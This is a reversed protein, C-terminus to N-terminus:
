SYVLHEQESLEHLARAFTQQMRAIESTHQENLAKIEAKHKAVLTVLTSNIKIQEALSYKLQEYDGQHDGQSSRTKQRKNSRTNANYSVSNVNTSGRKLSRLSTLTALSSLSLTSSINSSSSSSSSDFLSHNISRDVKHAGSHGPPKGSGSVCKSCEYQTCSCVRKGCRCMRRSSSSSSSSSSNSSNNNRNNNRSSRSSSSSSNNNFTTSQHNPSSNIDDENLYREVERYSRFHKNDPQPSTFTRYINGNDTRTHEQVTWGTPLGTAANVAIRQNSLQSANSSSSSSSFTSSKKKAIQKKTVSKPPVYRRGHRDLNKTVKIKNLCVNKKLHKVLGGPRAFVHSCHACTTQEATFIKEKSSSSSTSSFSVDRESTSPLTSVSDNLHSDDQPTTMEEPMECKQYMSGINHACTWLEPLSSADVGLSLKRWKNCKYCQAWEQPQLNLLQNNIRIDKQSWGKGSNQNKNKSGGNGSNQNKNKKNKSWHNGNLKRSSYWRNKLNNDIRGPM